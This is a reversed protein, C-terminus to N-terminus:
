GQILTQSDKLTALSFFFPFPAPSPAYPAQMTPTVHWKVGPTSGPVPSPCPAPAWISVRRTPFAKKAEAVMSAVCQLAFIDYWRSVILCCSASNTNHFDICLDVSAANFASAMALARKKEVSLPEGRDDGIADDVSSSTSADLTAPTFCRNLDEDKSPHWSTMLLACTLLVRSCCGM